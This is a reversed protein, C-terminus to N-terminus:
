EWGENEESGKAGGGTGESKKLLLGLMKSYMVISTEITKIRTVQPYTRVMKGHRGFADYTYGNIRVFKQLDEYEAYLSCLVELQSLHAPNFNDRTTVDKILANWNRQFVLNKKPPPYKKVTATVKIDSDEPDKKAPSFTKGRKERNNDEKDAKHNSILIRKKKKAM